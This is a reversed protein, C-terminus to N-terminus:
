SASDRATLDGPLLSYSVCRLLLVQESDWNLRAQGLAYAEQRASALILGDGILHSDLANALSLPDHNRYVCVSGAATRAYAVHAPVDSIMAPLGALAYTFLKNTLAISRNLTVGTESVLGLDYSAALREMQDPAAPELVHLRDAVGLQQALENLANRYHDSILGRLYLHPRSAALAMAEVATELGRGPGITQSFWYLSPGPTATGKLTAAAPAQALPFVNLIVTPRPLGYAQEYAAAIGPSAATIQVCDPLFAGEILGILRRQRAHAATEPLDGPHFDEADFGYRGGHLRAARAVAPLAVVYHAIYLDAKLRCVARALPVALPHQAAVALALSGPWFTCFRLACRQRLRLLYYRFSGGRVRVPHACWGASQLISGDRVRDWANTEGYVLHVRYGAAHLANAEKVIRPNSSLHGPSVLCITSSPPNM